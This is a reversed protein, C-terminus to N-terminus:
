YYFFTIEIIFYRLLFIRYSIKKKRYFTIFPTEEKNPLDYDLSLAIKRLSCFVQEWSFSLLDVYVYTVSSKSSQTLLKEFNKCINVHKYQHWCIKHFILHTNVRITFWTLFYEIRILRSRSNCSCLQIERGILEQLTNETRVLSLIKLLMLLLLVSKGM